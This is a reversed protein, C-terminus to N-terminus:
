DYFLVARLDDMPYSHIAKGDHDVAGFAVEVAYCLLSYVILEVIDHLELPEPEYADVRDIPDNYRVERM